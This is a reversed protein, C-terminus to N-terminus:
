PFLNFKVGVHASLGYDTGTLFEPKNAYVIGFPLSLEGLKKTVTLAGVLRREDGLGGVELSGDIRTSANGTDDVGLLGGVVAGATWGLAGAERLDVGDDPLQLGYVRFRTFGAFLGVRTGRKISAGAERVFAQFAAACEATPTRCVNVNDGLSRRFANVSNGLGTEFTLRGSLTEPGYIPDKYTRAVGFHLQPQNNILEGVASVRAATVAQALAADFRAGAEVIEAILAEIQARLPPPLDGIPTRISRDGLLEILERVQDNAAALAQEVSQVVQGFVAALLDAHKGAARGFFANTVNYAFELTAHLKNTHALLEQTRREKVQEPLAALLREYPEPATDVLARVKFVREDTLGSGNLLPINLDIGIVGSGEDKTADGIVGLLAMLPLFDKVSSNLGNKIDGLGTETKRRSM